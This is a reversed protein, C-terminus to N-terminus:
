YSSCHLGGQVWVQQFGVDVTAEAQPVLSITPIMSITLMKSGQFLLFTMSPCPLMMLWMKISMSSMLLYLSWRLLLDRHGMGCQTFLPIEEKSTIRKVVECRRRQKNVIKASRIYNLKSIPAVFLPSDILWFLLCVADLSTTALSTLRIVELSSIGSKICLTSCDQLLPFDLFKLFEEVM